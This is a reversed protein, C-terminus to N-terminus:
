DSVASESGSAKLNFLKAIHVPNLKYASVNIIGFSRATGAIIIWSSRIAQIDKTPAKM